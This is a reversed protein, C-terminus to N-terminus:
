RAVGPIGPLRLIRVQGCTLRSLDTVPLGLHAGLRNGRLLEGRDNYLAIQDGIADFTREWERKAQRISHHLQANQVAVVIQAAIVRVLQEDASQFRRPRTSGISLTGVLEDGALM